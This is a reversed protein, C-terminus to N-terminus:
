FPLKRHKKLEAELSLAYREAEERAAALSMAYRASEATSHRLAAVEAELSRAYEEMEHMKKLDAQRDLEGFRRRSDLERLLRRTIPRALGSGSRVCDVPKESALRLAALVSQWRESEELRWHNARQGLRERIIARKALASLGARLLGGDVARPMHLCYKGLGGHALAGYLKVRRYEDTVIGIGPTGEALGFVLPHYRTSVVLDAQGTLWKTQRSSICDCMLMSVSSPLRSAIAEAATADARLDASTGAVHPVFVLRSGTHVALQALQDALSDLSNIETKGAFYSDFTVAIWPTSGRHLLRAWDAEVPCPELFFADDTQYLLRAAPVGLGLATAASAIERVGVLMARSLAQVLLEETESCLSPGITQGLFVVPKGFTHAAECLLAREHVQEPWSASLNGGGSVVVGDSAAVASIIQDGPSGVPRRKRLGGLLRGRLVRREDVKESGAPFGFLPVANVGYLQSTWAPDRSVVTIALGPIRARLADVNAELMAEDGIHFGQQGGVDGILVLHPARTM